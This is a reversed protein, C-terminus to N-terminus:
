VSHEVNDDCRFGSLKGHMQRDINICLDDCIMRPTMQQESVIHVAVEMQNTPCSATDIRNTEQVAFKVTQLNNPASFIDTSRSAFDALSRYM